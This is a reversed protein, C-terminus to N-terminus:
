RYGKFRYNNRRSNRRRSSYYHYRRRNARRSIGKLVLRLVIFFVLLGAAIKLGLIFDKNNIIEMYKDRLEAITTKEIANNAVIKVSGILKGRAAPAGATQGSQGTEGGEGDPNGPNYYYNMMGLVDGKAIPAKYPENFIIEPILVAKLEAPDLPLIYRIDGDAILEVKEADVADAVEKRSVYQGSKVVDQMAFNAFGYELLAQSEAFLVDYSSAGLVVALLELGDTNVASSVLCMGAPDTYGTKIGTVQSYYKSRSNLLRNTYSLHSTNLRVDDPVTVEKKIVTDRFTQIKMAERGLTALDRATSYHNGTDEIGCPNTFHTNTLGLAAAKDNMEKIFGTITGDKSANEAIVYAVENASTVLMLDLLTGFNITDGAKVGATTYNYIDVSDIASQRVTMGRELPINKELALLATMIKTTSAPSWQQDANKEALVQGSEMDMLIYAGSTLEPAKAAYSAIPTQLLFIIFVFIHFFAIKRKLAIVGM